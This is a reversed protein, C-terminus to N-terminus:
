ACVLAPEVLAVDKRIAHMGADGKPGRHYERAVAGQLDQGALWAMHLQLTSAAIAWLASM